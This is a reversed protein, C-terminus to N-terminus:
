LEGNGAHFLFLPVYNRYLDGQEIGFKRAVASLIMELTWGERKLREKVSLKEETAAPVDPVFGGDGLIRAGSQWVEGDSKLAALLLGKESWRGM